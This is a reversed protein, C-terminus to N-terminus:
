VTKIFQMERGDCYVNLDGIINVSKLHGTYLPNDNYTLIYEFLAKCCDDINNIDYKFFNSEVNIGISVQAISKNIIELVHANLNKKTYIEDTFMLSFFAMIKIHDSTKNHKRDCDKFSDYSLNSNDKTIKKINQLTTETGNVGDVYFSRGYDIIKAIHQSKFTIVSGDKLYYNYRIYFNNKIKYLLINAIHLDNHTFTECLVSLPCLVQYLICIIDYYILHFFHEKDKKCVSIFHQLTYADIHQLLISMNEPISCGINYDIKEIHTINKKFNDSKILIEKNKNTEMAANNNFKFLGYTEIFCPFFILQKNIYKGVEYEYMLNDSTNSLASKFVAYTTLILRTYKLQKIISNQGDGIDTINGILYEFTTFHKFFSNILKINIGFAKCDNLEPCNKLLITYIEYETKKNNNINLMNVQKYAECSGGRISKKYKKLNYAIRKTNRKKDSKVSYKSLKKYKIINPM